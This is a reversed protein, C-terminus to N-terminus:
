RPVFSFRAITSLTNSKPKRAAQFYCSSLLSKHCRSTTQSTQLEVTLEIVRRRMDHVQPIERKATSLDYQNPKQAKVAHLRRAPLSHALSVFASHLCFEVTVELVTPCPLNRGMTQKYLCFLSTDSTRFESIAPKMWMVSKSLMRAPFPHGDNINVFFADTCTLVGSLQSGKSVSRHYCM